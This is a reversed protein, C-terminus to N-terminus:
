GGPVAVAGGAGGGGPVRAVRIGAGRFGGGFGGGFTNTNSSPVALAFDALVVSDGRRLGSLVQTYVGGVMGVKIARRALIGGSVTEVYSITQATQVASTPVALVDSVKGTAILVNASSGQFLGTASSPLAVVVPYSYGTSSSQVPGVQSVIGPIAAGVGDVEVTAPQGVKVSSVQTSTLTGVVQFAQTGVIVIVETGSGASVTDGVNIGVSAITGNIPSSLQAENLSQQAVILNADASDIAAQDAAIQEPSSVAASAGGGSSGAGGKAASGASNAGAATTTTSSTPPSSPNGSSSGASAETALDQSLSLEDHAVTGQDGSVRQQDIAVQQFEAACDSPTTTSTTTTSSTTSTGCNSEAQALDAAEQQQDSATKAQDNTLTNQDQTIPAASTGGPGGSGGRSSPVTSTTTTSGTAAPATQSAEDQALKAQDATVTLGDASVTESLATTGLTALSQGASVQQGVAATVTAVKGSVQFAASADSVPEVTGVVTLSQSVSALVVQGMRYGTIGTGSLAWATAGAALLAAAVLAAGIVRRRSGASRRFRDTPDPVAVALAGASPDM